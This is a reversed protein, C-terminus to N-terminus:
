KWKGRELMLGIIAYGAIDEWTDEITEETFNKKTEILHKLREVKEILRVIVGERGIKVVNEDGYMENKKKLLEELERCIKNLEKLNM